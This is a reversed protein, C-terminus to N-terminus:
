KGEVLIMPAGMHCPSNCSTCGLKLNPSEKEQMIMFSKLLAHKAYRILQVLHRKSPCVNSCMGCEICSQVHLKDCENYRGIDAYSAIFGPLINVPCVDVCRACHVCPGTKDKLVENESQVVIRTTAKTVPVEDTFQATGTMVDNVIIKGPKGIYGGCSEIAERFSTGVIVRKVGPQKVAGSVMVNVKIPPIGELVAESVAMAGYASSILVGVDAPTGTNPVRMGTMEKALLNLMTPSYVRKVQFISVDNDEGLEAKLASNTRVDNMGVVFAGKSAGSVKLLLKLGSVIKPINESTFNSFLDGENTLNILVTDIMKGSNLKFYLSNGDLDIIGSEKIRDLIEAKNASKNGKFKPTNGIKDYTIIVSQMKGCVPHAHDRIAVVDGSVSSHVPAGLDHDVNGIKQGIIVKDGVSVLPECKVGRHQLLPIVVQNRSDQVDELSNKEKVEETM